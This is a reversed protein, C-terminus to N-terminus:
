NNINMKKFLDNKTFLTFIDDFFKQASISYYEIEFAASGVPYIKPSDWQIRKMNDETQLVHNSILTWIRTTLIIHKAFLISSNNKSFSMINFNKLFSYFKAHLPYSINNINLNSINKQMSLLCYEENIEKRFFPSLGLPIVYFNSFKTLQKLLYDIFEICNCFKNNTIKKLLISFQDSLLLDYPWENFEPVYNIAVKQGDLVYLYAYIINLFPNGGSILIDIDHYDVIAKKSFFYELFYETRLLVHHYKKDFAYVKWTPAMFLPKPRINLFNHNNM